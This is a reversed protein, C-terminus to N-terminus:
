HKRHNKKLKRKKTNQMEVRSKHKTIVMLNAYFMAYIFDDRKQRYPTGRNERGRKNDWIIKKINCTWWWISTGLAIKNGKEM